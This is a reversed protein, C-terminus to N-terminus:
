CLHTIKQWNVVVVFIQPDTDLPSFEHRETILRLQRIFDIGQLKHLLALMQAIDNNEGMITNYLYSNNDLNNVDFYMKLKRQVRGRNPAGLHPAVQCDRSAVQCDLSILCNRFFIEIRTIM